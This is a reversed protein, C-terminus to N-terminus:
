ISDENRRNKQRHKIDSGVKRNFFVFGNMDEDTITHLDMLPAIAGCLVSGKRQTYKSSLNHRHTPVDM